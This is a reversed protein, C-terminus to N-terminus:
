ERLGPRDRERAGEKDWGEERERKLEGGEGQTNRMEALRAPPEMAKECCPTCELTLVNSERM